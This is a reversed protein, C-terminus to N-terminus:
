LSYDFVLIDKIIKRLHVKLANHEPHPLYCQRAEEDRFTMLIALDYNENKGEQSDNKGWEVAEIGAIKQPIQIFAQKAADMEDITAEPKTEVLM